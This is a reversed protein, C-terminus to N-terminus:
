SKLAQLVRDHAIDLMALADLVGNAGDSLAFYINGDEKMGVVIVNHFDIELASKLVQEATIVDRNVNLEIVEGV